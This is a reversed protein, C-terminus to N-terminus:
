LLQTQRKKPIELGLHNFARDTVMRGRATRELFGLQILYPEYIDELTEEEESLASAMTNLGVPGGNFKEILTRLIERDMGDLGIQDVGLSELGEEVIKETIIKHSHYQAFDRVRRLLRNAIRPTQRSCEALKQAASEEILCDLIKASRLIIKKIDDIDYFNFKFVNGFRDRLPSSLLSVKTTAGILTFRPLNLRVARASPGKGLMIDIAFDEMASYLVEEVVPRLRHIEDIFFVDGPSLNTLLSALDGQRELAPGSTIKVNAGMENGLILALTTKGLGAPGHLLVHELSEKRKKAAEIFITLNRKIEKQGIYEALTKPRLTQDFQALEQTDPDAAIVREKEETKEERKIM